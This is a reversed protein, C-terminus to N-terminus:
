RTSYVHALADTLTAAQPLGGSSRGQSPDVPRQDFGLSGALKKADAVLEERTTGVLRAALEAPLKVEAVVDRVLQQHEVAALREAVRKLEAQAELLQAQAEQRKDREAALDRLVAAKSGRAKPDELEVEERDAPEEGEDEGPAVGGSTDAPASERESTGTSATEDTVEDTAEVGDSASSQESGQASSSSAGGGGLAAAVASGLSVAMEAAGEVCRVWMPKRVFM